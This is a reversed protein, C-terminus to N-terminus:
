TNKSRKSTARLGPGFKLRAILIGRAWFNYNRFAQLLNSGTAEPKKLLPDIPEVSLIKPKFIPNIESRASCPCLPM